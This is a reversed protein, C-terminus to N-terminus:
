IDSRGFPSIETVGFVGAAQNTSISEFQMEEKRVEFM